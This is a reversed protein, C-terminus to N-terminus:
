AARPADLVARLERSLADFSLAEASLHGRRNVSERASAGPPHGTMFIVSTTPRVATLAEYLAFGGAGPMVVDTLLLDIRGQYRRAVEIAQEGDAADLM